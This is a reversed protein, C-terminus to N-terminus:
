GPGGAVHLKISGRPPVGDLINILIQNVSAEPSFGGSEVTPAACEPNRGPVILDVRFDSMRPNAVLTLMIPTDLGWLTVALNGHAYPKLSQIFVKNGKHDWQINFTQPDGISYSALKWPSGCIRDTFNIVTVFGASLRIIPTESGPSLDVKESRIAPPQATPNPPTAKAQLTMDYYKHIKTIQDPSMPLVEDVLMGFAQDRKIEEL